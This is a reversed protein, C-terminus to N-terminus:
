LFKHYGNSSLVQQSKEEDHPALPDFSPPFTKAHEVLKQTLTYDSIGYRGFFSCVHMCIWTIFRVQSQRGVTFKDLYKVGDVEEENTIVAAASYSETVYLTHLRHELLFFYDANLPKNFSKILLQKLKDTDVTALTHHKQIKEPRLFMTGSGKHTFLEQIISDASTIVASSSEPLTHLLKAILIVQQLTTESHWPQKLLFELDDSVSVNGLIQWNMTSTINFSRCSASPNELASLVHGSNMFPRARSGHKELLDVLEINDEIVKARRQRININNDVLSDFGHVIIVPMGNRHLFALCSALKDLMVEDEMIESDVQVVAFPQEPSSEHNQFQRLWYRAERPDTGIEELFRRLDQQQWGSCHLLKRNSSLIRLNGPIETSIFRTAAKMTSRCQSLGGLWKGFLNHTGRM